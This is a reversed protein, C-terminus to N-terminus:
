RLGPISGRHCLVMFSNLLYLREPGLDHTITPDFPASTCTIHVAYVAMWVLILAGSIKIFVKGVEFGIGKRELYPSIPISLLRFSPGIAPVNVLSIAYFEM